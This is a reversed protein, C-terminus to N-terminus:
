PESLIAMQYVIEFLYVSNLERRFTCKQSLCISLVLFHKTVVASFGIKPIKEMAFSSLHFDNSNSLFTAM